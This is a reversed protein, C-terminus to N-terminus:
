KSQREFLRNVIENIGWDIDKRTYVEDLVARQHGLEMVIKFTENNQTTPYIKYGQTFVYHIAEQNPVVSKKVIIKPM